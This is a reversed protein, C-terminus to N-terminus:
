KRGASWSGKPHDCYRVGWRDTSQPPASLVLAGPFPKARLDRVGTKGEM